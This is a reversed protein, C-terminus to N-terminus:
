PGVKQLITAQNHPDRQLVPIQGQTQSQGARRAQSQEQGPRRQHSRHGRVGFPSGADPDRRGGANRWGGAARHLPRCTPSAPRGEYCLDSGKASSRRSTSSMRGNSSPTEPGSARRWGGQKGRSSAREIPTGARLKSAQCGCAQCEQASTLEVYPLTLGVYAQDALMSDQSASKPIGPSPGNRPKAANCVM